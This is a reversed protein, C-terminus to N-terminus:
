LNPTVSLKRKLFTVIKQTIKAGFITLFLFYLYFYNSQGYGLGRLEFAYKFYEMLSCRKKQIMLLPLSYKSFDNKLNNKLKYDFNSKDIIEFIKEAFRLSHLPLLTNPSFDPENESSGFYFEAGIYRRVVPTSIYGVLDENKLRTLLYLQYLLTGDFADSANDIVFQTQFILGSIFISKRFISVIKLPDCFDIFDEKFYRFDEFTEDLLDHSRWARLVFITNSNQTLFEIVRSLANVEFVDDDGFIMVHKTKVRRVATRFNADYGLNKRNYKGILEVGNAIFKENMESVLNKIEKQRPSCDEAVQVVLMGSEINSAEHLINNLLRRLELPRNFSLIVITLM